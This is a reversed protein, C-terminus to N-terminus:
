SANLKNWICESGTPDQAESLVGHPEKLMYWHKINILLKYSM